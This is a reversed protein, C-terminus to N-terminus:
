RNGSDTYLWLDDLLKGFLIEFFEGSGEQENMLPVSIIGVGLNLVVAFGHRLAGTDDGWTSM